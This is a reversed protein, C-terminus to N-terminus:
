GEGGKEIGRQRDVADRLKELVIRSVVFPWTFIGMLGLEKPLGKPRSVAPWTRYKKVAEAYKQGQILRKYLSLAAEVKGTEEWNKAMQLFKDRAQAAKATEPHSEVITLLAEAEAFSKPRKSIALGM